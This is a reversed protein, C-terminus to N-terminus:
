YIEEEHNLNKIIYYVFLLAFQMVTYGLVYRFAKGYNYLENYYEAIKLQNITGVVSSFMYEFLYYGILLLVLSIIYTIGWKRFDKKHFLIYILFFTILCQFTFIFFVPFCSLYEGNFPPSYYLLLMLTVPNLINGVTFLTLHVQILVSLVLAIVLLCKKMDNNIKTAIDSCLYVSKRIYAITILKKDVKAM